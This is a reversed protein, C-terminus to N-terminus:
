IQRCAQKCENKEEGKMYDIHLDPYFLLSANIFLFFAIMINEASDASIIPMNSIASLAPVASVIFRHIHTQRSLRIGDSNQKITNEDIRIFLPIPSINNVGSHYMIFNM